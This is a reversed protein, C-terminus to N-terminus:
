HGGIASVIGVITGAVAAAGVILKALWRYFRAQESGDMAVKLEATRTAEDARQREEQGRRFEELADLRGDSRVQHRELDSLRVEVAGLQDAVKGLEREMTKEMAALGRDISTQVAGVQYAIVNLDVPPQARRDSMGGDSHQPSTM